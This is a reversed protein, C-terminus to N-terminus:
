ENLDVCPLVKLHKGANIPSLQFFVGTRDTNDRGEGWTCGCVKGQFFPSLLSRRPPHVDTKRQSNVTTRESRKGNARERSIMILGAPGHRCDHTIRANGHFHVYRTQTCYPTNQTWSSQIERQSIKQIRRSSGNRLRRARLTAFPEGLPRHFALVTTLTEEATIRKARRMSFCRAVQLLKEEVAERIFEFRSLNCGHIRSKLM